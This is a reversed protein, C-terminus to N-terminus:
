TTLHKAFIGVILRGKTEQTIEPLLNIGFHFHIRGRDHLYKAHWECRVSQSKISIDRERMKKASSKTNPSEPSLDVGNSSAHNIFQGPSELYKEQGFDNLYSLVEVIWKYLDQSLEVGLSRFKCKEDFYLSPFCDSGFKWFDNESFNNNWFSNRIYNLASRPDKILIFNDSHYLDNCILGFNINNVEERGLLDGNRTDASDCKDLLAYFRLYEDRLDSDAYIRSDSMVENVSIGNETEAGWNKSYYVKTFKKSSVDILDLLRVLKTKDEFLCVVANTLSSKEIAFNVECDM